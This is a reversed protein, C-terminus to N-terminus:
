LTNEIFINFSLKKIFCIRNSWNQSAGDKNSFKYIIFYGYDFITFAVADIRFECLIRIAM